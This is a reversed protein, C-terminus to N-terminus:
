DLAGNYLDLESDQSLLKYVDRVQRFGNQMLFGADRGYSKIGLVFFNEEGTRLLENGGAVPLWKDRPTTDEITKEAYGTSLGTGSRRNQEIIAEALRRPADTAPHIEVPLESQLSWDPRFGTHAAITDCEITERTTGQEGWTALEVSFNGNWAIREVTTRPCFRVRADAALENARRHLADRHPSPDDPTLTYPAGHAPVDRRVAWTLRTNPFKELLDGVSRLTSAASHGSGIILTHKNAFRMKDRGAVDPIKYDIRAANATEGACPAGGSGAFNPTQWVGTADIVADFFYTKEGAMSRTVLRFPFGARRPDGIFDSKLCRDRALSVVECQPAVRGRLVELSALTQVYHALEDGTPASAEDPLVAGRQTLLQAALPSRNRAWETFLGIYGWQRVNEALRGREFLKVDLGASAGYLAAEIGIPGGGIIAIKM